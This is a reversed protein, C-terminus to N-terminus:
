AAGEEDIFKDVLARNTETDMNVEIVKTAAALALSSVQNKIDKLVNKRNREIEKNANEIISAAKLEAADVISDHERNARITAENLIREVEEKAGRLQDEYKQKLEYAELKVKEANDISDKISNTRKDMFATVPKFLLKRLVLYLILFNIAVIVIRYVNLSELM